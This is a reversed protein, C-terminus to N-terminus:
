GQLLKEVFDRLKGLAQGATKGSRHPMDSTEQGSSKKRDDEANIKQQVVFTEFLVPVTHQKRNSAWLGASIEMNQGIVRIGNKGPINATLQNISNDHSNQDARCKRQDTHFVRNDNTDQASDSIQNGVDTRHDCIAGRNKDAKNGTVQAAKQNRDYDNKQDLCYVSIHYVGSKQTGIDINVGHEDDGSENDAASQSSNDTHQKRHRNGSKKQIRQATGCLM